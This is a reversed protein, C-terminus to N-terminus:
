PVLVLKGRVGGEALRQYARPADELSLADAIPPRLGSRELLRLVAALEERTGMSSGLVRLQRAFVRHLEAAPNPGSTAGVVVVAGGVRLSRLSHGFTAEGVSDLVGEVREPLRAGPELAAAAGLELAWQRAGPDRSTVVVEIGAACALLLAATAVGGAAGQVLLRDGPRLGACAFLARYATLWATPLCAAEAFSLAAPKDVLNAEPVAVRQAHTGDVRESLISGGDRLDGPGPGAEPVVAHVVVERGEATVGAADSGLVIPLRERPTAVGRLTWLDHHNVSAARVEVVTWGLPATPEDVDSVALGRLPDTPDADTALVARM